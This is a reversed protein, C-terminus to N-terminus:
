LVMGLITKFLLSVFSTTAYMRLRLPRREVIHVEYNAALMAGTATGDGRLASADPRHCSRKQGLTSMGAPLGIQMQRLIDRAVQENKEGREDDGKNLPASSNVCDQQHVMVTRGRKGKTPARRGAQSVHLRVRLSRAGM